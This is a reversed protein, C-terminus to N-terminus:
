DVVLFQLSRDDSGGFLARGNFHGTARFPATFKKVVFECSDSHYGM